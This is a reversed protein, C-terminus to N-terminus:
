NGFVFRNDAYGIYCHCHLKEKAYHDLHTLMLNCFLPSLRGGIPIGKLPYQDIVCDLAFLLWNDKLFDRLTRKLITKSTSEYCKRIDLSLCYNIKKHQVYKWALVVARQTGHNARSAFSQHIMKRDLIPELVQALAQHWIRHPYLPLDAIDRVKGRELRTFFKYKPIPLTGTMAQKQLLELNRKRDAEFKAVEIKNKRAKCATDAAAELNEMSLIQAKLDGIRNPMHDYGKNEEQVNAILAVPEPKIKEQIECERPARIVTIYSLGSHDELVIALRGGINSNSNSLDNNCNAYSLGYNPANSSNSNSNGGVYVVRVIWYPLSIHIPGDKIGEEPDHVIIPSRGAGDSVRLDLPCVPSQVCSTM